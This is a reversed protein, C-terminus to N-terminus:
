RNFGSEIKCHEMMVTVWMFIDDVITMFEKEDKFERSTYRTDNVYDPPRESERGIEYSDNWFELMMKATIFQTTFNIVFVLGDIYFAFHDEDFDDFCSFSVEYSPSNYYNDQEDVKYSDRVEITWDGLLGVESPIHDALQQLTYKKKKALNLGEDLLDHIIPLLKM